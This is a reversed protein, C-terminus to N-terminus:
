APGLTLLSYNGYITIFHGMGSFLILKAELIHSPPFAFHNKIMM